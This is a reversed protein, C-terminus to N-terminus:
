LTEVRLGAVGFWEVYLILEVVLFVVVVLSMGYLDICPMRWQSNGTCGLIRCPLILSQGGKLCELGVCCLGM